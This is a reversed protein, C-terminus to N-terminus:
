QIDITRESSNIATVTVQDYTIWYGRLTRSGTDLSASNVVSLYGDLKFLSQSTEKTGETNPNQILTYSKAFTGKTNENSVVVGAARFINTDTVTLYQIRTIPGQGWQDKIVVVQPKALYSTSVERLYLVAGTKAGVDTWMKDSKAANVRTWFTAPITGSSVSGNKFTLGDADMTAAAYVGFGGYYNTTFVNNATDYGTTMKVRDPMAQATGRTKVTVEEFKGTASHFVYVLEDWQAYLANPITATDKDDVGITAGLSFFTGSGDAKTNWGALRYGRGMVTDGNDLVIGREVTTGDLIKFGENIKLNEITLSGEGEVLTPNYTGKSDSAKLDEIIRNLQTKADATFAGGNVYYTLDIVKVPDTEVPELVPYIHVTKHDDSISALVQFVDGPEYMKGNYWWGVFNYGAPIVGMKDMIASDSKDAYKATDSPSNAGQVRNGDGDTLPNGNADVADVAYHVLYEGTRRWQAQIITDRTIATGTKFPKMNAVGDTIDYWGILAYADAERSFKDTGLWAAGGGSPITGTTYLATRPNSAMYQYNWIDDRRSTDFEDYYYYYADGHGKYEIYDRTINDYTYTTDDGYKVWRWTSQGTQLEGGNPDIKIYYYLAVKGAYVKTGGLPMTETSFDFEETCLKDKYWKGDWAYGPVGLDVTSVTPEADALSAGYRFTQADLVPNENLPNLYLIQEEIRRYRIAMEDRVDKESENPRVSTWTNPSYNGGRGGNDYQYADMTFGDFKEAIQISGAATEGYGIPTTPWTGDANQTYYYITRTYSNSNYFNVSTVTNNAGPIRNVPLVFQGLYSMSYGSGGYSQGNSRYSWAYDGPWSYGNQDLTQGYLGTYTGYRTANNQTGFNLTILKRDFYVNLISSGDAKIGSSVTVNGEDDVDILEERSYAFGVDPTRQTSTATPVSGTDAPLPESQGAYDYTKQTANKDNNVNQKWYVVVYTTSGPKWHGYLVVEGRDNTYNALDAFTTSFNFKAGHSSQAETKVYDEVPEKETYWGDFAYGTMTPDSPEAASANTSDGTLFFSPVYTGGMGTEASVFVVWIGSYYVPYVDTDETFEVNGNNLLVRSGVVDGNTESAATGPTLSWGMFKLTTSPAPVTVSSMDMVYKGESNKAIQKRELVVNGAAYQWFTVYIVSGYYAKVTFTKDENGVTIPDGFKVEQGDLEGGDYVWMVFAQNNYLGPIPVEQLSEGDKIIQSSVTQGSQNVFNYPQGDGGVFNYTYRHTVTEGGEVVAYVSFKAADFTVSQADLTVNEVPEAEVEASELEAASADLHVVSTNEANALQASTMTVTIEGDPQIEKGDYLFTIDAAALVTGSVGETNDVATQVADLRVPTVTMETGEPLTGEPADVKVTLGDIADSTLVAAPFSVTEDPAVTEEVPLEQWGGWGQNWWDGNVDAGTGEASATVPVLSFAMILALVLSLIKASRKNKM